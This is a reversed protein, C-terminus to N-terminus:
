SCLAVFNRIIDKGGGTLISEPHFQLGEILYDRHRVGM